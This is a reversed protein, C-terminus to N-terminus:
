STLKYFSAFCAHGSFKMDLIDWEKCTTKVQVLSRTTPWPQYAMRTNQQQGVHHITKITLSITSFTGVVPSFNKGKNCKHSACYTFIEPKDTKWYKGGSLQDACQCELILLMACWAMELAQMCMAEIDPGTKIFLKESIKDQFITPWPFYCSRPSSTDWRGKRSSWKSIMSTLTSQCSSKPIRSREGSNKQSLCLKELFVTIGVEGCSPMPAYIYIWMESQDCMTAAISLTRSNTTSTCRSSEASHGRTSNESSHHDQDQQSFIIHEAENSEILLSMVSLVMCLKWFKSQCCKGKLKM